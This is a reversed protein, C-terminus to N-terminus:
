IVWGFGDGRPKRLLLLPADERDRLQPAVTYIATKEQVMYPNPCTCGCGRPM